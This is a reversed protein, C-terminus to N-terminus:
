KYKVVGQMVLNMYIMISSTTTGPVCSCYSGALLGSCFVLPGANIEQVFQVGVRLFGDFNCIFCIEKKHDKPSM